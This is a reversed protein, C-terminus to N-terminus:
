YKNAIINKGHILTIDNSGIMGKYTMFSKIFNWFSRNTKIDRESIKGM